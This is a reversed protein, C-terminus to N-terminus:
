EGGAIRRPAAPARRRVSPAALVALVLLWLLQVWAWWPPGTVLQYQLTGNASGLEFETGPAQVAKQNLKTQGVEVVWRPDAPQALRLVREGTGAQVAEGDGTISRVSSGEVVAIGSNPVPWAFQEETGTGVGLGPTNNISIRQAAEGGSLTVYSVGLRILDPLIEDDASDEVLRTVVSAALARAGLDGGYALGRESDGLRAFDGELLSWRVGTGSAVMALTRGPTSSVQANRVYASVTGAPGRTLQSQGDIVWWGAGLLLAVAAVVVLGLSALHRMGLAKDSLESAVGDLGGVAALVLAGALLVLWELAQPRTWTGTPVLVALRTIGIAIAIAAAAVALAVASIAPRRLAGVLAALWCVGFFVASLWIPTASDLPHGIVLLWGDVASTSALAPDTGTLLRGPYRLLIEGWPGLLMVLPAALVVASQLWVRTRRARLGAFVAAALAMVWFLPVLACILLMWFAVAGATRWSQEEKVWNRASYGLVPLVVATLAVGISGANLGGILAPTLAYALAGAGALYRDAVLQRLIRFSLLWALPVALVVVATVLWDPRGFTVLSFLGVLAAWPTGAGAGGPVLNLYNNVLTVWSDPAPLLQPASLLGEGYTNRSALLAGVTLATAAVAVLPVKATNTGVEAFDDGIMEDLSAASGRGSFTELWGGLRATTLGAARRIGSGRAPRLGQTHADSAQRVPLAAVQDALSRRLERDTLWRWFGRIEEGSRALDKGLLFGLSVILTVVALRLAVLWRWPKATNAVTLALGAARDEGPDGFSAYNTLQAEPEAIVSYGALNARWGFDLGWYSRPLRTNFGGLFRWTDGRVLMGAAPVGLAAVSSLQGQYLEGPDTLTHMRGNSSITQAWDSVLKGAGRRRPEILLCGFVSAEPQKLVRQLLTALAKPDPETDDPVVWIWDAPNDLTLETVIGAVPTTQADIANRCRQQDGDSALMAVVVRFSSLDVSEEDDIEHLWAWPDLGFEDSGVSM